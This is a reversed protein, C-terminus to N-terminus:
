DNSASLAILQRRPSSICKLLCLKLQLGSPAHPLIRLDLPLGREFFPSTQGQHYSEDLQFMILNCNPHRLVVRKVRIKNEGLQCHCQNWSFQQLIYSNICQINLYQNEDLLLKQSEKVPVDQCTSSYQLLCSRCINICACKRKLLPQCLNLQIFVSVEWYPLSTM